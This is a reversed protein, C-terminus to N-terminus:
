RTNSRKRNKGKRALKSGTKIKYAIELSKEAGLPACIDPVRGPDLNQQLRVPRGLLYLM